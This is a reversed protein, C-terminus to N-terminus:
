KFGGKCEYYNLLIEITKTSNVKFLNDIHAKKYRNYRWKNIELIREYSENTIKITKM